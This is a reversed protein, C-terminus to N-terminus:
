PKGGGPRVSPPPAAALGALYVALAHREEASGAFAPMAGKLAELRGLQHDITGLDWGQVLRAVSNYGSIAHCGQCQFRFLERGAPAPDQGVRRVEAYTASPLFGQSRYRPLDRPEIGNVELYGPIVHPLRASEGNWESAFTVGFGLLLLLLAFSRTCGEPRNLPGAATFLFMLVCVALAGFFLVLSLSGPALLAERAAPPLIVAQWGMGAPLLGIGVMAFGSSGRILTGRLRPPDTETAAVLTFLGGLLVALAAHVLLGANFTDNFFGDLLRGTAVWTGPTLMFAFIGNIVFLALWSAAVFIWATALHHAPATVGWGSYYLLAASVQVVALAWVTGWVWVLVRAHLLVAWPETLGLVLWIGVGIVAGVVVTMLLFFRSWDQLFTLLPQNGERHAKHELIVMLLSAGAAFYGGIAFLFVLVSKLPAALGPADWVPFTM